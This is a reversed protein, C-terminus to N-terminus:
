FVCFSFQISNNSLLLVVVVVVVVAVVVVVFTRLHLSRDELDDEFTSPFRRKRERDSQASHPKTQM